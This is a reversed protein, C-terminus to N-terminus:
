LTCKEVISVVTLIPCLAVHDKSVVTLIPCLAVHDKSVVTLIPCLAVLNKSVVKLIISVFDLSQRKGICLLKWLRSSNLETPNIERECQNRRM